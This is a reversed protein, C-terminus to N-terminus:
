GEMKSFGRWEIERRGECGFGLQVREESLRNSLPPVPSLGLSLLFGESGGHKQGQMMVHDTKCMVWDAQKIM